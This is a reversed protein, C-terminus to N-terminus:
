ILFGMRQHVDSVHSDFCKCFLSYDNAESQYYCLCCCGTPLVFFCGITVSLKLVCMVAFVPHYKLLM